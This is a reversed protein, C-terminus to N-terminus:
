TAGGDHGRTTKRRSLLFERGMKVSSRGDYEIIDATAYTDEWRGPLYSGTGVVDIPAAASAMVACKAPNFGSSAVIRVAEFGAEDLRERLFWIAAASVGTGVLWRQEAETRYQRIAEPAHREIVAYSRAPDLRCTAPSPSNLSGIPSRWHM